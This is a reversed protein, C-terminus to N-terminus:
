PIKQIRPMSKLVGNHLLLETEGQIDPDIEGALVIIGKKAQQSSAQLPKFIGFDGPPLRTKWNIPDNNRRRTTTKTGQSSLSKAWHLM